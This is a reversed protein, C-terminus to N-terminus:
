SLDLFHGKELSGLHKEAVNESKEANRELVVRGLVTVTTNTM